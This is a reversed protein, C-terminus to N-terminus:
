CSSKSHILLQGPPHLHVAARDAGDVSEGEEDRVRDRFYGGRRIKPDGTLINNNNFLFSHYVDFLVSNKLKNWLTLCM